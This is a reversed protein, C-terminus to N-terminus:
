NYWNLLLNQIKKFYILIRWIHYISYMLRDLILFIVLDPSPRVRGQGKGQGQDQGHVCTLVCTIYANVWFFFYCYYYDILADWMAMSHGYGVGM